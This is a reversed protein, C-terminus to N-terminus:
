AERNRKSPKKPSKDLDTAQFQGGAKSIAERAGTTAAQLNVTLKKTLKGSGLIKVPKVSSKIIKALALSENTVTSGEKLSDLRTLSVCQYVVQSIPVFGRKKPLRKALPNQGGEFGPRVGGGARSNQGKTGRGATKGKGSGIGRGIRKKDKNSTITLEHIKM